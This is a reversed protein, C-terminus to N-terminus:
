KTGGNQKSQSSPDQQWTFFKELSLIAGVALGTEWAKADMPNTVNAAAYAVAGGITAKVFRGATSVARSGLFTKIKDFFSM